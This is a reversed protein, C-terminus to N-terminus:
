NERVLLFPLTETMFTPVPTGDLMMVANGEGDFTSPTSTWLTLADGVTTFVTSNMAPESCKLEVISMLENVNPLRWDFYSGFDAQAAQVHAEEWTSEFATGECVGGFMAMQGALCASWMLGTPIHTVTGDGHVEFESDPSMAELNPNCVQQAFAVTTGLMLTLALGLKGFTTTM